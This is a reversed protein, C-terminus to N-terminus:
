SLTIMQRDQKGDKNVNVSNRWLAIGASGGNSEYQQNVDPDSLVSLYENTETQM